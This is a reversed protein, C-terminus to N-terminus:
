LNGSTALKWCTSGAAQSSLVVQAMDRYAFWHCRAPPATGMLTSKSPISPSRLNSSSVSVSFVVSSVSSHDLVDSEGTCNGAQCRPSALDVATDFVDANPLLSKLLRQEAERCGPALAASYRAPGRTGCTGM